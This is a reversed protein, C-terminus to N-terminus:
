FGIFLQLFRFSGLKLLKLFKYGNSTTEFDYKTQSMKFYTHSFGGHGNCQLKNVTLTSKFFEYGAIARCM